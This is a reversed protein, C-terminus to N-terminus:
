RLEQLTSNSKLAEAIAAAGESGINNNNLSHVGCRSSCWWCCCCLFLFREHTEHRLRHAHTHTHARSLAHTHTHTRTLTFFSFSFSLSHSLFRLCCLVVARPRANCQCLAFCFLSLSLKFHLLPFTILPAFCLRADVVAGICQNIGFDWHEAGKEESVFSVRRM